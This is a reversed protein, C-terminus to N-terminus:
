VPYLCLTISDMWGIQSHSIVVDKSWIDINNNLAIYIVDYYGYITAIHLINRMTQYDKANINM